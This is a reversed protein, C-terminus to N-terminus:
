DMNPYLTQIIHLHIIYMGQPVLGLSAGDAVPVLQVSMDRLNYHGCPFCSPLCNVGSRPILFSMNEAHTCSYRLDTHAHIVLGKRYSGLVFRCHNGGFCRDVHQLHRSHRSTCVASPSYPPEIM